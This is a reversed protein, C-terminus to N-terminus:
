SARKTKRRKKSTTPSDIWRYGQRGSEIHRLVATPANNLEKDMRMNTSPATGFCKWNTLWAGKERTLAKIADLLRHRAVEVWGSSTYVRMKSREVAGLQPESTRAASDNRAPQEGAPADGADAQEVQAQSDEEIQELWIWLHCEDAKPIQTVLGDREGIPSKIGLLLDYHKLSLGDGLKRQGRMSYDYIAAFVARKADLEIEGQHPPLPLNAEPCNHSCLEPPFWAGLMIATEIKVNVSEAPLDKYRFREFCWGLEPPGVAEDLLRGQMIVQREYEDRRQRWEDGVALQQEYRDDWLTLQEQFRAFERPEKILQRIRKGMEALTSDEIYSDEYSDKASDYAGFGIGDEPM